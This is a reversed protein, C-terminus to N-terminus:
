AGEQHCTGGSVEDNTGSEKNILLKSSGNTITASGLNFFHAEPRHRYQQRHDQLWAYCPILFYIGITFLWILEILKFGSM